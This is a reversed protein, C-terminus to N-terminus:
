PNVITIELEQSALDLDKLQLDDLCRLLLIGCQQSALVSPRNLASVCVAAFDECLQFAPEWGRIDVPISINIDLRSLLCLPAVCSYHLRPPSACCCLLRQNFLGRKAM